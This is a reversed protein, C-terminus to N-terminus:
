LRGNNRLNRPTRRSISVEKTVEKKASIIEKVKGQTAAKDTSKKSQLIHNQLPLLACPQV